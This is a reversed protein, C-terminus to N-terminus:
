VGDILGSSDGFREQPLGCRDLMTLHLNAIPTRAPLALHRGGKVRGCAGGIWLTPLPHSDHRDSNSMNSGYLFLAHDLLSGEGDPTAALRDIFGAFREVHYRQIKVLKLLRERDDAHHSLPHFSEPVGIHAYSRLSGEAAMICSIVRTLDAQCALALLDFLLRLQADFDPQVGAPADPVPLQALREPQSRQVRREVERVSDLYDALVARDAGGLKRQLAQAQERVLDLLSRQQLLRLRRGDATDGEGFLRLYLRRPNYEMPLPSRPDRFSLTSSYYCGGAGNCAAVQITSEAAVELSPLATEQGIQRAMLQDLTTALHAGPGDDRPRVASLWTAPNLHHVSGQSAANGLNGFSTVYRKHRELPALIPSLLLEGGREAPTWHDMAAGFATNDMIAGHPM